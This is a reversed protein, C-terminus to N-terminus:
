EMAYAEEGCQRGLAEKRDLRKAHLTSHAGEHMATAYYDYLSNFSKKPPLRVEAQGDVEYVSAAVGVCAWPVVSFWFLRRWSGEASVADRPDRDNPKLDSSAALKAEPQFITEAFADIRGKEVAEEPL